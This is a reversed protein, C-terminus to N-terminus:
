LIPVKIGIKRFNRFGAIEIARKWLSTTNVHDKNVSDIPYIIVCKVENDEDEVDLTRLIKMDRAYGSIERVDDLIGSNSGVYQPKYKADMILKEGVHVYDVRSKGYGSVQFLIKKGFEDRLKSLVYMEYLRSMDIWFPPTTHNAQSINSISYDYRRLIMKAVKIIESYYQYIANQPIRQVDSVEVDDSVGAFVTMMRNIKTQLLAYSKHAAMCEHLMREAFVLAKKLLRNVPIDETYIQYRCYAMDERKTAVNQLLHRQLILHGKIKGKLNSEETRYDKRLGYKAVREVLSLYHILLIPTLYSQDADTEIAPHNTEIGYCKAFYDVEEQRDVSLACILMQTFDIKEIKPLVVLSLEKEVLWDAGIYYSAQRSPNLGLHTPPKDEFFSDEVDILKVDHMHLIRKFEEEDLTGTIADKYCQHERYVLQMM